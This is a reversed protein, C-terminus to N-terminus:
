LSKCNRDDFHKLVVLNKVTHILNLIHFCVDISTLLDYQNHLQWIWMSMGRLM